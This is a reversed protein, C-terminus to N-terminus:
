LQYSWGVLKKWSAPFIKAWYVIGLLM